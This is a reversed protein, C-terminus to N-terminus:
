DLANTRECSCLVKSTRVQKAAAEERARAEVEERAVVAAQAQGEASEVRAELTRMATQQGDAVALVQGLQSQLETMESRLSQIRQEQAAKAAEEAEREAKAAEEAARERERLAQAELQLKIEHAERQRQAQAEALLRESRATSTAQRLGRFALATAM